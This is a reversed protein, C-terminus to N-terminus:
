GPSVVTTTELLGPVVSSVSIDISMKIKPHNQQQTQNAPTLYTLDGFELAFSKATRDMRINAIVVTMIIITMM